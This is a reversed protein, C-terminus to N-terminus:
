PKYGLGCFADVEAPVGFPTAEPRWRSVSVVGPDLLELGDFFRAIQEPTRSFYPTTGQENSVEIAEDRQSGHVASTGDNLAPNPTTTDIGATLSPESRPFTQDDGSV